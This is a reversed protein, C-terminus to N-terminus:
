GGFAVREMRCVRMLARADIRDAAARGCLSFLLLSLGERKKRRAARGDAVVVVVAVICGRGGESSAPRPARARTPGAAALADDDAAAGGGATAMTARGEVAVVVALRPPGAVDRVPHLVVLVLM